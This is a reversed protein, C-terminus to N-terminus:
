ARAGCSDVLRALGAANDMSHKATAYERAKAAFRSRLSPEAILQRVSQALRAESGECFIGIAQKRLLQDPDVDLSVVAAERMWAQIFTNPFGEYRSTNVFVHSRALLQNVETQTRAGLYELNPTDRLRRLLAQAWPRDGSGTADAGIMVFRVETLDRLADALTVFAEPRKWPKIGAVWAVIPTGSKDIAESPQPHFNPIIADARRHYNRELLAAQDTTQTVICHARRIGYEVSRKELFCRVPNRGDLSVKPTVDSDHAVHWVLRARHRRAYYACVGTFGCAVRQYIASPRIERLARYLPRAVSMYGFRPPRSKKGVRVVQYRDSTSDDSVLSSLYYIEYRRMSSLVDIFRDIQYEAGGIHAASHAPTVICLRKMGPNAANV